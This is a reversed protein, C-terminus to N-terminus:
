YNYYDAREESYRNFKDELGRAKVYEYVDDFLKKDQEVSDISQYIFEASSEYEIMDAITRRISTIWLNGRLRIVDSWDIKPVSRWKIYIADIDHPYETFMAIPMLPFTSIGLYGAASETCLIGEVGNGRSLLKECTVIMFDGVDNYRHEV